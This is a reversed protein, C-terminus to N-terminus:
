LERFHEKIISDIVQDKDYADRQLQEIKYQLESIKGTQNNKTQLVDRAKQQLSSKFQLELLRTM